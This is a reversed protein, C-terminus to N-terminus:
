QSSCDGSTRTTGKVSGAGKKRQTRLRKNTHEFAATREQM